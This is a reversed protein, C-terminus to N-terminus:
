GPRGFRRRLRSPLALRERLSTRATSTAYGQLTSLLEEHAQADAVGVPRWAQVRAVEDASMPGLHQLLASRVHARHSRHVLRLADPYYRDFLTHDAGEVRLQRRMLSLVRDSGAYGSLLFGYVNEHHLPVESLVRRVPEERYFVDLDASTWRKSSLAADLLGKRFCKKCRGCAEVSGQICSQTISSYPSGHVVRATAIESLGAVVPSVPLDVAAFLASLRRMARRGSWDQFGGASGVMFAAELVMGWSISHLRLRDALLLAPVANAWHTPFGTPRRTHELDTDVAYTERGERSLEDLARLAAASQYQSTSPSRDPGVRNLFLLPTERPLLVMAATSDVGGSFALGPRGDAPASRPELRPDATLEIGYASRVAAALRESVGDVGRLVLRSGTWPQAVLLVSLAVLDPHVGDFGHGDPAWVGFRRRGARARGAEETDDEEPTLVVELSSTSIEVGAIM